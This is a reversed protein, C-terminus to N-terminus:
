YDEGTEREKGINFSQIFHTLYFSSVKLNFSSNEAYTNSNHGGRIDM